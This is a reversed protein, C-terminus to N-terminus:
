LIKSIYRYTKNKNPHHGTIKASDILTIWSYIFQNLAEPPVLDIWRNNEIDYYYKQYNLTIYYYHHGVLLDSNELQKEKIPWHNANIGARLKKNLLLNKTNNIWYICNLPSFHRDWKQSHNNFENCSGILYNLEDYDYDILSHKHGMKIADVDFM